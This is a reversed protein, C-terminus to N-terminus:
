KTGYFNVENEERRFDVAIDIGKVDFYPSGPLVMNIDKTPTGPNLGNSSGVGGPSTKASSSISTADPGKSAATVSGSNWTFKSIVQAHGAITLFSIIIFLLINKM